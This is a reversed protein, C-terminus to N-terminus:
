AQLKLRLAVSGDPSRTAISRYFCDNRGTHCCGGGLQEVYLVLADQDCDTRIEVVRQVQGSTKGKHWIERRSRSWYVAEGLELTLQLSEANMYALMLPEKTAADIAMAPLLGDADFKPTFVLGEELQSKNGPAPFSNM